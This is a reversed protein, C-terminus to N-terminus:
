LWVTRHPGLHTAFRRTTPSPYQTTSTRATELSTCYKVLGTEVGHAVPLIDGARTNEGIVWPALSSARALGFTVCEPWSHPDTREVHKVKPALRVDPAAGSCYCLQRDAM